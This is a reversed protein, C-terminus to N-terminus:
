RRHDHGRDHGRDHDYGGDHGRDYGGEHGRGHDYGHGRGHDYGGWSETDVVRGRDDRLTATDRYNDWVYSTRDQYLDRSTDYGRGTHIRVSQHGRLTVHRFRYVKRDSSTLTWDDLNVSQRSENTVTVWEANLSRGSRNDAGPSDYQVEGLVVDPRQQHHRSHDAASAPLAAAAVIAGAAIATATLRYAIRSV